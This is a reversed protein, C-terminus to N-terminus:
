KLLYIVLAITGLVPGLLTTRGGIVVGALFLISPTVGVDKPSIIGVIPVFLAGGIAALIAGIGAITTKTNKM